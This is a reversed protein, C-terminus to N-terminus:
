LFTSLEENLVDTVFMHGPTHTICIEPKSDIVVAQPTVGCAWFVPVEGKKITVADGFDPKMLNKIGIVSPDGIHVPSGHVLTYRSTVKVAQVVKDPLLPRMTAVMPGHFIGAPKCAITTIYM